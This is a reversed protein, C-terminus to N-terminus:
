DKKMLFLKEHRTPMFRERDLSSKLSKFLCLSKIKSDLTKISIDAYCWDSCGTLHSESRKFKKM